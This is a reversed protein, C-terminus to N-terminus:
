LLEKTSLYEALLEDLTNIPLVDREHIEATYKLTPNQIASWKSM